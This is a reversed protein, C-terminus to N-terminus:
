PKPARRYMACDSTGEIAAKIRDIIRGVKGTQQKGSAPEQMAYHWAARSSPRADRAGQEVLHWEARGGLEDGGVFPQVAERSRLRERKRGETTRAGGGLIFSFFAFM